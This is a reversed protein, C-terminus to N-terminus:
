AGDDLVADVLDGGDVIKAIIRRVLSEADIGRKAAHPRLPLLMQASFEIPVVAYREAKRRKAHWLLAKVLDITTDRGLAEAIQRTTMGRAHLGFVAETKNRYGLVPTRERRM